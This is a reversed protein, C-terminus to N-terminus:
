QCAGREAGALAVEDRDYRLMRMPLTKVTKLTMRAAKPPRVSANPFGSSARNMPMRTVFEAM